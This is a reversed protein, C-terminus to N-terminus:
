EGLYKSYYIEVREFKLAEFLRSADQHCKSGCFWREVGRARLEREVFRFLRLPATGGRYEDCVYFIDMTCTLCTKYHLGPAIFGIFYGAITGDEDRLVVMLLEGLRDRELYVSYQPDLPVVDKNLAM